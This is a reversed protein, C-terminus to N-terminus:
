PASGGTTVVLSPKILGGRARTGTDDRRWASSADADQPFGAEDPLAPLVIHFTGGEPDNEALAQGRARGCDLSEGIAGHGDREAQDDRLASLDIRTRPPSGPVPTPWTWNCLGKALRARACSRRGRGTPSMPRPMSRM